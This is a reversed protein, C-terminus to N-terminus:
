LGEINEPHYKKIHNILAGRYKYQKLCIMCFWIKRMAITRSTTGPHVYTQPDLNRRGLYKDPEIGAAVLDTRMLSHIRSRDMHTAVKNM